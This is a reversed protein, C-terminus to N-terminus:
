QHPDHLLINHTTAIEMLQKSVFCLPTLIVYNVAKTQSIRNYLENERKAISIDSLSIHPQYKVKKKKKKKIIPTIFFM